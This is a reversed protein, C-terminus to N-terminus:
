VEDMYIRKFKGKDKKILEVKSIKFCTDRKFTVQNENGHNQLKYISRANTSEKKPKIIYMHSNDRWNSDKTTNLYHPFTYETNEDFNLKDDMTCFRYLMGDEDYIPCKDLVSDLGDCMEPIPKEKDDYSPWKFAYSLGCLFCNLIVMEFETLGKQDLKKKRDTNIKSHKKIFNKNLFSLDDNINDPMLEGNIRVLHITKHAEKYKKEISILEDVTM